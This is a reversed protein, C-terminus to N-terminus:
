QIGQYWQVILSMHCTETKRGDAVLQAKHRFNEGLKIDWIVHCDIKTYGIPLEELKNIVEFAPRVNRMELM